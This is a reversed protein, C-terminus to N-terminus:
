RGLPMRRNGAAIALFKERRWLRVMEFVAMVGPVVVMVISGAAAAAAAAAGGVVVASALAVDPSHSPLPLLPPTSEAKGRVKKGASESEREEEEEEDDEM